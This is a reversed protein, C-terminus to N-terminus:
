MAIKYKTIYISNGMASIIKYQKILWIWIWITPTAICMWRLVYDSLKPSLEHTLIAPTLAWKNSKEQLDRVGSCKKNSHLHMLLDMCIM